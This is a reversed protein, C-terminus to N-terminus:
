TSPRPRKSSSKHTISQQRTRSGLTSSQETSHHKHTHRLLLQRDPTSYQCLPCPFSEGTHHRRSHLDLSKKQICSYPCYQCHYPKEQTHTRLHRRLSSRDISAYSCQPCKYPKEGTHVRLHQILSAKLRTSYHCHPCEFPKDGQHIGMHRRMTLKSSFKRDCLTCCFEKRKPGKVRDRRIESHRAGDKKELEKKKGEVRHKTKEKQSWSEPQVGRFCKPNSSPSESNLKLLGDYCPAQQDPDANNETHQNFIHKHIKKCSKETVDCFFCKFGGQSHCRQHIEWERESQCWELCLPCQAVPSCKPRMRHRRNHRKEHADRSDVRRFAKPCLACKHPRSSRKSGHGKWHREMNGWEMTAWSCRPCKFGQEGDHCKLHVDLLSNSAMNAQCLICSFGRDEEAPKQMEGMTLLPQKDEVFSNSVDQGGTTLAMRSVLPAPQSPCKTSSIRCLGLTMLHASQAMEEDQDETCGMRNSLPGPMGDRTDELQFVAEEESNQGHQDEEFLTSVECTQAVHPNGDSNSSLGMDCPPSINQLMSYMPLLFSMREMDMQDESNNSDSHLDYPSGSQELEEDMRMGVTLSEEDEKELCSIHPCPQPSHRESVHRSIRAKQSSTFQCVRCRFVEVLFAEVLTSLHAEISNASSCYLHSTISDEALRLTVPQIDQYADRIGGM